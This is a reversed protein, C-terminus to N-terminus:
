MGIGAARQVRMGVEVGQPGVTVGAFGGGAAKVEGIAVAAGDPFQRLVDVRLASRDTRLWQRLRLGRSVDAAERRDPRVGHRQVLVWTMGLRRSAITATDATISLGGGM